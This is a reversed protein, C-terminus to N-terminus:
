AGEDNSFEDRGGTEGSCRRRTCSRAVTSSSIADIRPRGLGDKSHEGPLGGCCRCLSRGCRLSQTRLGDGDSSCDGRRCCHSPVGCPATSSPAPPKAAEDDMGPRRGTEGPCRRCASSRQQQGVSSEPSASPAGIFSRNRGLGDRSRRGSAASSGAVGQERMPGERVEGAHPKGSTRGRRGRRLVGADLSREGSSNRMDGSPSLVPRGALGPMALNHVGEEQLLRM